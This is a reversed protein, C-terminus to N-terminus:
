GKKVTRSYKQQELIKNIENLLNQKAIAKAQAAQFEAGQVNDFKGYLGGTYNLAADGRALYDALNASATYDMNDGTVDVRGFGSLNNAAAIRNFEDNKAQFDKDFQEKNFSVPTIAKGSSTIQNMTPDDIMSALAQYKVREEASAVNDLGVQTLNPNIYSNLNMDYLKQGDSLGLLALTEDTLTDDSLDSNIRNVVEPNQQNALNAREQIPNLLDTKAKAEGAFVANKNQAAKTINNNIQQGANDVETNFMSLIDKYTNGLQEFRQKSDTNKQMLVNDLKKQGQSYTPRAFTDQLLNFRGTESQTNDVATQAKKAETQWQDYNEIKDVSDPGNYGGSNKYASYQDKKNADPATFWDDANFDNVIGPTNTKLADIAQTGALAQTNVGDAVKNGMASANEQNADLYQNLNAWSGSKTQPKPASPMANQSQNFSTSQGSVDFGGQAQELQKKKQEESLNNSIFPM